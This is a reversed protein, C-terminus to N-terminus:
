RWSCNLAKQLETFGEDCETPGSLQHPSSM